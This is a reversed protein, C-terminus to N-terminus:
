REQTCNKTFLEKASKGLEKEVAQILANKEEGYLPIKIHAKDGEAPVYLYVGGEKYINAVLPFDGELSPVRRLIESRHFQASPFGDDNVELGVRVKDGRVASSTVKWDFLPYDADSEIWDLEIDKNYKIAACMLLFLNEKENATLPLAISTRPTEDNEVAFYAELNYDKNMKVSLEFKTDSLVEDPPLPSQVRNLIMKADAMPLGYSYLYLNGRRDVEFRIGENDYFEQSLETNM